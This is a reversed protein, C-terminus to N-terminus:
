ATIVRRSQANSAIHIPQFASMTHFCHPCFSKLIHPVLVEKNTSWMDMGQQILSICQPNSRVIHTNRIEDITNCRERVFTDFERLNIEEGQNSSVYRDNITCM